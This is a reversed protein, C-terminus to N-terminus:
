GLRGLRVQITNTVTLGTHIRAELVGRAEQHNRISGLSATHGRFKGMERLATVMTIAGLRLM